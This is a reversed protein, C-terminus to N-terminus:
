PQLRRNVWRKDTYDYRLRRHLRDAAGEWFEITIPKLSYGHWGEPRLLPSEYTALELAQHRLLNEDNLTRSQLSLISMPYAAKPRLSWLRDSNEKSIKSIFGSMSVQQKSERWYFLGSAWGTLAIEQGKQSNEHTAFIISDDSIELLQVTRLSTRALQDSTALAFAGPEIVKGSVANEFWQQFIPIPESPPQDFITIYDKSKM